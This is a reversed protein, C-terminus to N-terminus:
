PKPLFGQYNKTLTGFTGVDDKLPISPQTRAEIERLKGVTNVDVGGFADFQRILQPAVM